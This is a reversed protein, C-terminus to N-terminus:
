KRNSSSANEQTMHAEPELAQDRFQSRWHLHRWGLYAVVVGLFANLGLLAILALRLSAASSRAVAFPGVLVIERKGAQPPPVPVFVAAVDEPSMGEVAGAVLRQVAGEDIPPHGARHRILVSARPRVGESDFPFAIKPPLALHIRADVVGDIAELTRTLEGSIAASWRAREETATPMLTAGGFWNGIGPESARPLGEARLVALAEPLDATSIAIAFREEGGQQEIKKEAGIGHRDLAMLVANAQEEELGRVLEAQCAVLAWVWGLLVWRWGHM